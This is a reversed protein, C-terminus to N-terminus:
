YDDAINPRATGGEALMQEAQLANQAFTMRVSDAALQQEARLRRCEAAAERYAAFTGFADLRRLPGIQTIRYVFYPM